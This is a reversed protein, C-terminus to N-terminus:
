SNGKIQLMRASKRSKGSIVSKSDSFRSAGCNSITQSALGAGTKNRKREYRVQTNKLEFPLPELTTPKKQQQITDTSVFRGATLDASNRKIGPYVGVLGPQRPKNSAAQKIRADLRTVADLDGVAYQGLFGVAANERRSKQNKECLRSKWIEKANQAIPDAEVVSWQSRGDEDPKEYNKPFFKSTYMKQREPEGIGYRDRLIAGETEAGFNKLEDKSWIEKQLRQKWMGDCDNYNIM